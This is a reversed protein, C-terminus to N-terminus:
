RFRQNKCNHGESFVNPVREQGWIKNGARKPHTRFHENREAFYRDIAAKAEDSSAYDSHHIVSAAMGSFVSEIVNLFQARSPLPALEILPTPNVSRNPNSNIEEVRKLFRRSAHWGAADWSLYLKTCSRYQEVLVDLLRIMEETNKGDSYFHTVQNSSLELAATVILCGKSAQFHPVTPHEDPGVVRRGGQQKIAFPGFEDISFFRETATLNQLIDLIHDVKARYDPDNSTLVTRVKKCRYGENRIIRDIYNKGIAVGSRKLAAHLDKRRWSTRNFGQDRPPAHLMAFIAAKIDPDRLKCTAARSSRTRYLAADEGDQVFRRRVRRVTNRGVFLAEAIDRDDWGPGGEGEDALMLIRAHALKSAASVGETVLRKFASRKPVTLKVRYKEVFPPKSRTGM